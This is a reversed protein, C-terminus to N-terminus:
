DWSIGDIQSTTAPRMLAVGSVARLARETPNTLWELKLRSVVLRATGNNLCLSGVRFRWSRGRMRLRFCPRRVLRWGTADPRVYYKGAVLAVSGLGMV